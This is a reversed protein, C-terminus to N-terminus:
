SAYPAISIRQRSLCLHLYKESVTKLTVNTLVQSANLFCNGCYTNAGTM